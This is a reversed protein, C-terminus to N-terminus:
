RIYKIKYCIFYVIHSVTRIKKVFSIYLIVLYDYQINWKNFISIYWIPCYAKCAFGLQSLGILDYFCITVAGSTFARCSHWSDEFIKYWKLLIGTDCNHPLTMLCGESSLPWSHRAYTLIQLREGAITVDGYLHLIRSHSSFSWVFLNNWRLLSNFM